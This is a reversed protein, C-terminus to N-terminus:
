DYQDQGTAQGSDDVGSDFGGSEDSGSSGYNGATIADNAQQKQALTVAQANQKAKQLVPPEYSVRVRNINFPNRSVKSVKYAKAKPALNINPALLGLNPAAIGANRLTDYVEEPTTTTREMSESFPGFREYNTPNPNGEFNQRNRLEREQKTTRSPNVLEQYAKDLTDVGEKVGEVIDFDFDFDFNPTLAKSIKSSFTERATKKNIITEVERTKQEKELAEVSGSMSSTAAGTAMSIMPPTFLTMLGFSLPAGDLKARQSAARESIIEDSVLSLDMQPM